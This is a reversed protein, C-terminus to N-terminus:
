TSILVKDDLLPRADRPKVLYGEGFSWVVNGWSDVRIVRSSFPSELGDGELVIFEDRSSIRNVTVKIIGTLIDPYVFWNSDGTSTFEYSFREGPQLSPSSFVDGYLNLDPDLQFSDYNTTGSHISVPKSSNNEWVVTTGQRIFIDSDTIADDNITITVFDQLIIHFDSIYRDSSFEWEIQPVETELNTYTIIARKNIADGILLENDGLKEASGLLSKADLKSDAFVAANNSLIVLGDMDLQVVSHGDLYNTGYILASTSIGSLANTTTTTTTEALTSTTTTTELDTVFEGIRSVMESVNEAGSLGSTWSQSRLKAVVVTPLGSSNILSTESPIIQVDIPSYINRFYVNAVDIYTRSTDCPILDTSDYIGGKDVYLLTRANSNLGIIFDVTVSGYTYGLDIGREDVLYLNITHEGPDLDTLTISDTSYHDVPIESDVVYRLHQGSALIAFNEVLFDVVSPSSSYIQNPCPSTVSIYPETYNSVYVFTGEAIAEINTNLTGDNNLLQAIVTHVGASLNSFDISDTYIDTAAAGDISVRIGNQGTEGEVSGLAFNYLLFKVNVNRGTQQQEYPSLILISPALDNVMYNLLVKDAGTLTIKLVHSDFTFQDIFDSGENVTESLPSWNDYKTGDIGLLEFNSNNLYFRQTGIKIYIKNKNLQTTSLHVQELNSDFVVYLIGDGSNYISHLVDITPNSGIETTTTTTSPILTTTTNTTNSGPGNEEIGYNDVPAVLFSGFFGDILTGSKDIEMVRDNDTDSVWIRGNSGRSVGTVLGLSPQLGNLVQYTSRPLVSGTIDYLTQLDSNLQKTHGESGYYFNNIEDTNSILMSGEITSTDINFNTGSDWDDKSTYTFSNEIGVVYFDLFIRSLTASRTLSTSAGFYMEIEIYKYLADDPLSITSGSTSTYSSWSAQSLDALTNGVRTRSKFVLGSAESDTPILADWRVRWYEYPTGNGFIVRTYGDEKFKNGSSVTIQDINFDFGKATDWGDQSSIYFGIENINTRTYSSIDVTIEQWGNQLTDINITPTNRDLVKTYSDQPGNYNDNLYFYIDGHEVSTSKLYFVIYDYSSWNSADFQKKLLLEIEVETDGIVLKGSNLPSVSTSPDLVLNTIDGSLDRTEVDWGSLNSFNDILLTDVTSELSVTSGTVTTNYDNAAIFEAQSDWTKTFAEKAPSPQGSITHQGGLSWPTTDVDATTNETDIYSDPSIGPIFAIENVFYEDIDPYIHKVALILQLLDITSTEGMLTPDDLNLAQVYSDLQAHTLTGQNILGTIHDILPLRDPDLTGSKLISADMDPLNDQNIIGQVESGLEVPPPNDTGGIHRHESVIEQILNIFGLYVRDDTNIATVSTADTDVYGLFLYEDSSNESAFSAFSVSQDWYSTQTLTAYIYNRISPTLALTTNETSAVAVFNVNGKGDSVVVDIGGSALLDWKELVGNGVVDYLARLQVDLTEWRQMEIVSSTTDGEEFYGMDYKSTRKM